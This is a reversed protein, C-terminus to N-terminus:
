KKADKDMVELRKSTGKINKPPFMNGTGIGYIPFCNSSKLFDFTLSSLQVIFMAIFSCFM